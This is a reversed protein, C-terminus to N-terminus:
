RTSTITAPMPGDPRVTIGFVTSTPTDQFNPTFAPLLLRLLETMERM